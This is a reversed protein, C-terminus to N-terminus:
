VQKIFDADPHNEKFADSAIYADIMKEPTMGETMKTFKQISDAMNEIDIDSIKNEITNILSILGKKFYDEHIGTRYEIADNVAKILEDLLGDEMNAKVIEVVNTNNLLDEIMDIAETNEPNIINSVDIDTFMTIIEFNFIFDKLFNYFNNGVVIDVVSSVFEMKEIMRLSTNFNFPIEIGNNNYIGNKDYIKSM